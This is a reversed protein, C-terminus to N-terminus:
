MGRSDSQSADNHFVGSPDSSPQTAIGAYRFTEGATADQKRSAKTVEKSAALTGAPRSYSASHWTMTSRCNLPMHTTIM